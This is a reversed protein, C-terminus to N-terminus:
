GAATLVERLQDAIKSLEIAAKQTEAAGATTSSAATAVGTINRAIESSGKAAESVNRAILQTTATQEEVAGAITSSIDYIQEIVNGIGDMAQRTEGSGRQVAEIKLRIEETAEATRKSLEKVESAVVAFGRGAQGARAAEITANLALLNTQQAISAIVKVVSGIEENASSLKEMLSTAGRAMEVASKAVGTAQNTSRSIEGISARMQETSSALETISRSVQEGAAAVANAQVSTEEANGAMQHSVDTLKGSAESLLTVNQGLAEIQRQLKVRESVVSAFKVVGVVRGNADFVPNYSANIWVEKGGKGLRRFEGAHLEGARLKDWFARYEMSAAYSPEVFLSHHQGTIEQAQYGMADLFNQNAHLIRGDPSFEIVAQSRDIAEIQGKNRAQELVQATVDRVLKLVTAVKGEGDRVPLYIGEIWIERGGKALRAFVGTLAEGAALKPWFQRYAESQAYEPSAFMRHHRGVIEDLEYGTAALFPRNAALITGDPLFEIMAYNEMLGAMIRQLEELSRGAFDM